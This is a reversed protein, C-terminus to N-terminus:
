ALQYYLHKGVLDTLQEEDLQHSAYGLMMWAAVDTDCALVWGNLIAFLNATGWGTRKNGDFFPHIQVVSAAYCATLRAIDKTDEYFRIHKPRFIAQDLLGESRLGFRGGHMEIARDHIDLVDEVPVWIPDEGEM